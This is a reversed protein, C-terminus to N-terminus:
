GTNMQMNGNTQPQGTRHEGQAADVAPDVNARLQQCGEKSAADKSDNTTLQRQGAASPCFVCCGPEHLVLGESYPLRGHACSHVAPVYVPATGARQLSCSVAPQAPNLSASGRESQARPCGKHLMTDIHGSLTTNHTQNAPQPGRNGTLDVFSKSRVAPSAM